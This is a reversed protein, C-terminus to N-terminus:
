KDRTVSFRRKAKYTHSHCNNQQKYDKFIGVVRVAEKPKKKKKKKTEKIRNM